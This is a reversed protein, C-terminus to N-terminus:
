HGKHQRKAASCRVVPSSLTSLRRLESGSEERQEDYATAEALLVEMLSLVATNLDEVLEVEPDTRSLNAGSRNRENGLLLYFLFQERSALHYDQGLKANLQCQYSSLKFSSSSLHYHPGTRHQRLATNLVEYCKVVLRDTDTRNQLLWILLIRLKTKQVYLRENIGQYKEKYLTLDIRSKNKRSPLNPFFSM